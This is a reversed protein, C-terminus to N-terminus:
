PHCQAPIEGYRSVIESTVTQDSYFNGQTGVLASGGVGQAKARARAAKIRSDMPWPWLPKAITGGTGDQLVGNEYRYCLSAGVTGDPGVGTYINPCASLSTCEQFDTVTVVANDVVIRRM